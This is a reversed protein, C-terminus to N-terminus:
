IERGNKPLLSVSMERIRKINSPEVFKRIVEAQNVEEPIVIYDDGMREVYGKNILELIEDDLQGNTGLDAVKFMARSGAAQFLGCLRKLQSYNLDSGDKRHTFSPVSNMFKELESDLTYCRSSTRSLSRRETSELGVEVNGDVM